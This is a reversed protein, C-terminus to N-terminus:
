GSSDPNLKLGVQIPAPVGISVGENLYYMHTLSYTLRQLEYIPM